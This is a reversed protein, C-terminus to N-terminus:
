RETKLTPAESSTADSARDAHPERLLLVLLGDLPPFVATIPMM